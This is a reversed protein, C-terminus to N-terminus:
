LHFCNSRAYFPYRVSGMTLEDQFLFDLSSLFMFVFRKVEVAHYFAARGVLRGRKAIDAM